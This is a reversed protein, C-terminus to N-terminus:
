QFIDAFYGQLVESWVTYGANSLHVGDELFLNREASGEARFRSCVDLFDVELSDAVKQLGANLGHGSGM